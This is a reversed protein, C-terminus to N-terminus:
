IFFYLLASFATGLRKRVGESEKEIVVPLSLSPSNDEGQRLEGTSLLAPHAILIGKDPIRPLLFLSLDKIPRGRASVSEIM